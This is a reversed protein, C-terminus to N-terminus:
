ELMCLGGDNPWLSIEEAEGGVLEGVSKVAPLTGKFEGCSRLKWGGWLTSGEYNVGLIERTWVM